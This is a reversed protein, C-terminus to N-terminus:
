RQRKAAALLKMRMWDALNMGARQAAARILDADDPTARFKITESRPNDLPPRGTRPSMGDLIASV